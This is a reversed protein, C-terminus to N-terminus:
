QLKFARMIKNVNSDSFNYVLHNIMILIALTVMNPQQKLNLREELDQISLIPPDQETYFEPAELSAFCRCANKVFRDYMLTGSQTNDYDCNFM